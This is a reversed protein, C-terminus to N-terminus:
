FPLDEEGEIEKFEGGMTFPVGGGSGAGSSDGKGKGLPFEVNDCTVGWSIRNNGDKDVWKRSEMRGEITIGDGKHFYQNVFAGSKGWATCDIFDAIKEDGKKVRRDVAVTFNCVEIGSATARLEPDRSLRGCLIIKNM